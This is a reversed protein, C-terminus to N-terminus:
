AVLADRGWFSTVAARTLCEPTALIVNAPIGPHWDSLEETCYHDRRVVGGAAYSTKAGDGSNAVRYVGVPLGLPDFRRRNSTLHM